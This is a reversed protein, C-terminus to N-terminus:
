PLHVAGASHVPHYIGELRCPWRKNQMTNRVAQQAQASLCLAEKDVLHCAAGFTHLDPCTGVRQHTNQRAALSSWIHGLLLDTIRWAGSGAELKSVFLVSGHCPIFRYKENALALVLDGACIGLRAHLCSLLCM